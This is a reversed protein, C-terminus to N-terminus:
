SEMSRLFCSRLTSVSRMYGPAPLSRLSKVTQKTLSHVPWPALLAQRWSGTGEQTPSLKLGLGM